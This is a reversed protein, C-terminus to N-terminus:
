RRRERAVGSVSYNVRLGRGYLLKNNLTEMAKTASVIDTFDAHAFGKPQGTRRDIAVRVDVVNEIDKFLNNLDQDSMEFSMNGIFLTKSPASEVAPKPKRGESLAYQVTIRRGRVSQQDLAEIAKGAQEASGMEAYGFGKSLGRQDTILRVSRVEGHPSLQEILDQETVQFYLNGLYLSPSPFSDSPTDRRVFTHSDSSDRYSNKNSSFKATAAAAVNSATTSITETASSIAEAVASKAEEGKSNGAEKATDSTSQDNNTSPAFEGEATEAVSNEGHQAETAGDAEPEAQTVEGSAFRRQLPIVPKLFANQLIPNRLTTISRAKLSIPTRPSLVRQVTRRLAFRGHCLLCQSMPDQDHSGIGAAVHVQLSPIENLSIEQGNLTTVTWRLHERLYVEVETPRLSTLPKGNDEVDALLTNTILVQGTAKAKSKQQSLCNECGGANSSLSELPTSFNYVQGVKTNGIFINVTFPFGSLAFREYLVNVIYDDHEVASTVQRPGPEARLQPMLSQAVLNPSSLMLNRTSGYLSNITAKLDSIYLNNNFSGTSNYKSLWPQLEPYSYGCQLWGRCGNSDFYTGNADTHFPALSTTPTDIQDQPISWTGDNPLEKDATDFWSTPNLTQWIAFLRDVNCHHAWFLPDFAAVPVVAMQGSGGSWVHIDNHIGEVSMYEQPTQQPVYKTCAFADYNSFYDQSFLRYVADGLTETTYISDWQHQTLATAIQDNNQVGRVFSDDDTTLPWKSTGICTDFPIGGINTIGASGMTQQNPMTFKYVPNDVTMPGSPITIRIQANQFIQPINYSASGTSQDPKKMAWDWYPLRWTQAANTWQDRNSDDVYKPIIQQTMIEYLRQEYLMLYPRHWTPFLVSNHTCYGAGDSQSSTNEDWPVLPQGHIGAIQFYSLKDEVSIQQFAGLALIFLAVQAVDNRDTSNYWEDFERRSPKAASSTRIGTIPYTSPDAM